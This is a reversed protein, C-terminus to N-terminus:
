KILALGELASKDGPSVLLVKKFLLKAQPLKGMRYNTWAFMLLGDYDFPYLNVVKEFLPYAAAYNKQNYYIVGLKYNVASNKGDIKLISVYQATVENWKGLAAAPYVYGLKPEIAYPMLAIAKQYYTLSEAYAGSMYKLYGIRLNIEYSKPNNVTLMTQAASSYNGARELAYSQEFAVQVADQSYATTLFTVFVLISSITKTIMTRFYLKSELCVWIMKIRVNQM